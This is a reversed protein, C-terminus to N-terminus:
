MEVNGIRKKIAAYIEQRSIAGSDRAHRRDSRSGPLRYGLSDLKKFAESVESADKSHKITKKAQSISAQRTLAEKRLREQKMRVAENREQAAKIKLARKSRAIRRKRARANIQSSTLDQKSM